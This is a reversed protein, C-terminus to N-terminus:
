AVQFFRGFLHEIQDPPIGPGEDRVAIRVENTAGHNTSVDIEVTAGAPSFNKANRILNLFMTHLLDMDGAVFPEDGGPGLALQSIVRGGRRRAKENLRLGTQAGGENISRPALLPLPPGADARGLMLPSCGGQGLRLTEEKVSAAFQEHEELTRR